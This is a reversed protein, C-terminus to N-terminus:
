SRSQAPPEGTKFPGLLLNEHLKDRDAKTMNAWNTANNVGAQKFASKM